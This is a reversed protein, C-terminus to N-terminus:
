FFHGGCAVFKQIFASFYALFIGSSIGGMGGQLIRIEDGGPMLIGGELFVRAWTHIYCKNSLSSSYYTGLLLITMLYVTLIKFM